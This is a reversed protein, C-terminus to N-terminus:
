EPSVDVEHLTTLEDPIYSVLGNPISSVTMAHIVRRSELLMQYKSLM